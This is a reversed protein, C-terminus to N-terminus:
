SLAAAIARIKSLLGMLEEKGSKPNMLTSRLFLRDQVRAQIIFYLGEMVVLERIKLNVQETKTEDWDTERYRYCVINSEPEDILLEFDPQEKLIAAFTKALDFQRDIYEEFLSTGFTKWLSFVKISMFSKTLEFTRRALNFWEKGEDKDWLYSAKQSFTQYSYAAKRFVVATVLKPTMLMKHFDMIMSDARDIGQLLHRYRKSFMVSAGHAGDVHMWLNKESCFDAIDQLPDFSGSATSCSNAIVGIIEVDENLAKEYCHELKDAKMQLKKNVPVQVIGRNGMGMVKVARAISYHAELSAMFAYQKNEYGKEWIDHDSKVQRACLMCTLNGLTGGSTLFGDAESGWGILKAIQKAILRELIVGATGQEYVGMGPDLLGGAFEALAAFPAISSTQHGFYQPHHLHITDELIEHIFRDFDGGIDENLNKEWKAFLQEPDQYQLVKKHKVSALYDALTDVLKHGANRFEEPHYASELLSSM